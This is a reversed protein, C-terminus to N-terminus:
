CRRETNTRKGEKTKIIEAILDLKVSAYRFAEKFEPDKESKEQIIKNIDVEKFPM